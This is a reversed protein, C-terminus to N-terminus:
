YNKNIYEILAKICSYKWHNKSLRTIDSEFISIINEKPIKMSLLTELTNAKGFLENKACIAYRESLGFTTYHGTVKDKLDRDWHEPPICEYEIKINDKKISTIEAFIWQENFICEEDLYPHIFLINSHISKHNSNCQTCSPILNRLLISYQAYKARPLYHDLTNPENIGGCYPCKEHQSQNLLFDYIKRLDRISHFYDYLQYLIRDNNEKIQGLNGKIYISRSNLLEDRYLPLKEKILPNRSKHIILDIIKELQNNNEPDEIKRM